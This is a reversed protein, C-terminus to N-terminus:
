KAFDLFMRDFRTRREADNPYRRKAEDPLGKWVEGGLEAMADLYLPAANREKPPMRFYAAIDFPADAKLWEPCEVVAGPLTLDDDAVPGLCACLVLLFRTM